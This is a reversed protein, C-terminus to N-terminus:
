DLQEYQSDGATGKVDFTVLASRGDDSLQGANGPALPSRVNTAAGTAQIRQIVDRVGRRVDGAAAGSRAQVLVQESYNRKFTSRLVADARGSEGARSTQTNGLQKTGIAGGIAFAALVFVLWGIIATKRHQASWRGARAAINRTTQMTVGPTPDRRGPRHRGIAARRHLGRLVVRLARRAHRARRHPRRAPQHDPLVPGNGLLTGAGQM